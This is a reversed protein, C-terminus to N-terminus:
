PQKRLLMIRVFPTMRQETAIGFGALVALRRWEDAALFHWCGPGFAAFNALDRAHEVLLLRGGPALIRRLEHFFIERSTRTRIEHAAFFLFVVDFEGEKFPLRRHDVRVAAPEGQQARARAISPETMQAADFFDASEGESQPFLTRLTASSEDLGAHLNLWRRPSAPLTAPIWTWRYLASRDYIWHSALLSAMMWFAGLAAAGCGLLRLWWPGFWVSLWVLAAGVALTAGVYYPWNYRVIQAVGTFRGRSFHAPGTQNM